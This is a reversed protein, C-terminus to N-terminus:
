GRSGLLDADTVGGSKSALTWSDVNNDVFNGQADRRVGYVTIAHGPALSQAAVLTGTGDAKTEVRVQTATGAVVTLTGSDTSTLGGTAAHIAASGTGHGTFTASKRDDAVVLDTAAVGGSLNLLSWADAAVNAKFENAANRSVAYLTLPVGATLSQAAVGSGSGDAATEVRVQTAESSATVVGQIELDNATSNAVDFIYCTGSSSTGGYNVMRFTVSTGPNVNQLEPIGALGIPGVSGGTSATVTYSLTAIDTFPGSGLQYQLLGTTAGTGSRRYDFKSISSFSVASGARPTVSFTFYQNAAIAAAATASTWANGGWARGAGTGTIGVGMGRTLGGASINPDSVTAALPSDGFNNAGGPLAHVDWGALITPPIAVTLSQAVPDAAGFNADGAQSATITTTGVGVLTVTNGSVTAVALNSSTYSVSLGSSATASLAFPADAPAKNALAGFTIAQPSQTINGTLGVPQTLTYNAADAGLLTCAATVATGTGVKADAFTGAGSLTVADPAIVGELSGTISAATTGDYPKNTVAPTSITLVKRTIEATLGTPETLTYNTSPADYGTVTIPKAAGATKSAFAAVPGGVVTFTEGNELGAYAATGSLAATATGDYEKGVGALGTITLDKKAVNSIPVAVTRPTTGGGSVTVSGVYSGFATSAALRVSITASVSGESQTLNLSASYGGGSSVEFGAPASVTLDGTLATGTVSFSTPMASTTGYITDVATPTGTLNIMPGATVTLDGAQYTIDYNSAAFTGGTAATPVVSGAHTGPTADAAAGDGYTLTVSEITDPSVLGDSTFATAGTVPSSLTNGFPKTVPPATVTLAKPSVTSPAMVVNVPAAGTSACVLNGSYPSGAVTATAALRVYLTTSAIAGATGVTLPAANTGVNASFDSVTSVQFGPPPTISIAATMNAGAVSFQTPASATGYTTNVAAPTGTTTIAPNAVPVPVLAIGRFATNSGATALLAPTGTLTGGYGSSDTLCAIEGGGTAGSGGKRTVYLTVTSGSVVGALGRYGDAATGVTGKATWTTGDFSYKQIGGTGATDDCVYLTDMGAVSASLDALFFGYPSGAVPFGPLNTITQGSATPLGAGVTGLRVASGSSDSVYLRGGFIGAQRLNTVTTSLQTSTTGGLATYRIGGAGGAIWFATGDVSVASRPSSGTSADSLATTTDVTGNSDVRGIVRNVAASTTGTLSSTNSTAADYGTLVLYQGDTSRTLLGESTSTGAAVMQKNSGSASTPMPISQDLVGAPTYEDIFVPNGTNVLSGTGSGVRYVALNGATFAAARATGVTPLWALCGLLIAGIRFPLLDPRKM